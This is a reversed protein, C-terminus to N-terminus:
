SQKEKEEVYHVSIYMEERSIILGQLKLAGQFQRKNSSPGTRPADQLKHLCRRSDRDISEAM